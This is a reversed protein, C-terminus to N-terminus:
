IFPLLAMRSVLSPNKFGGGEVILEDVDIDVSKPAMDLTPGVHFVKIGAGSFRKYRGIIPWPKIWGKWGKWWM